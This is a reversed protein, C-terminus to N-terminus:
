CRNRPFNKGCIPILMRVAEVNNAKIAVHVATDGSRNEEAIFSDSIEGGLQTTIFKLTSLLSERVM